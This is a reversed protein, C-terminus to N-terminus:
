HSKPSVKSVWGVVVCPWGKDNALWQPMDVQVRQGPQIEM